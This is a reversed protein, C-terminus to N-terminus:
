EATLHRHVLPHLRGQRSNPELRHRSSLSLGDRCCRVKEACRCVSRQHDKPRTASIEENRVPFSLTGHAILPRISVDYRRYATKGVSCCDKVASSTRTTVSRNVVRIMSPQKECERPEGVLHHGMDERCQVCAHSTNRRASCRGSDDRSHRDHSRGDDSLADATAGTVRGTVGQGVRPLRKVRSGTELARAGGDLIHGLCVPRPCAVGVVRRARQLMWIRAVSANMSTPARAPAM